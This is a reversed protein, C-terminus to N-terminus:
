NEHKFSKNQGNKKITTRIQSGRLSDNPAARVTLCPPAIPTHRGLVVVVALAPTRARARTWSVSPHVTSDLSPGHISAGSGMERSTEALSGDVDQFATPQETPLSERTAGHPMSTPIHLDTLLTREHLFSSRLTLCTLFFFSILFWLFFLFVFFFLCFFLFFFLVCKKKKFFFHFM